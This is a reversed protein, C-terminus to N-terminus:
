RTRYFKMFEIGPAMVVRWSLEVSETAAPDIEAVTAVLCDLWLDYHGPSIDHGRIGHIRALTVIYTNSQHTLFFEVMQALSERLMEKQRPLDTRAFKAAVVADAAIFREYFRDFFRESRGPETVRAFSRDFERVYDVM